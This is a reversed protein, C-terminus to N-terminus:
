KLHPQASNKPLPAVIKPTAFQATGKISQGIVSGQTSHLVRRKAERQLGRNTGCVFLLAICPAVPLVRCNCGGKKM